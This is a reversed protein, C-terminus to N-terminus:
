HLAYVVPELEKDSIAHQQSEGLSATQIVLDNHCKAPTEATCRHFTNPPTLIMVFWSDFLIPYIHRM